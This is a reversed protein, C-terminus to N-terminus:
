FSAMSLRQLHPDHYVLLIDTSYSEPLYQDSFAGFYLLYFYDASRHNQHIHTYTHTHTHTHTYKTPSPNSSLADCKCVLGEVV